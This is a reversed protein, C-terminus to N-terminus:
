GRAWPQRKMEALTMKSGDVSSSASPKLQGLPERPMVQSKAKKNEEISASLRMMEKRALSPSKALLLELNGIKYPNKALEYWIDHTNPMENSLKVIGPVESFNVDKVTDEFDEYETKGLDMKSVFEGVVREAEVQRAQQMQLAQTKELIMAEIAEKSLAGQADIQAAQPNSMNQQQQALLEQKAKEYASHRVAGVVKDVESQPVMKEAPQEVMPASSQVLTDETM